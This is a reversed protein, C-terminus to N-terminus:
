RHKDQNDLHHREKNRGKWYDEISERSHNLNEAPEWSTEEYGKWKVHYRINKRGTHRIIREIEWEEQGEILDPPPRIYNEGHIRTSIFPTLLSAHFINNMKWKPPLQLHFNVPGCVETITFPGERKTTIKKNYGLHLNTGELWVKDGKKFPQYSSRIKEKMKQRAYEHAILADNRWFQLQEMRQENTPNETTYPEIIAKPAVGYM